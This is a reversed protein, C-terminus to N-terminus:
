LKGKPHILLMSLKNVLGTLNVVIQFPAWIIPSQQTGVFLGMKPLCSSLLPKLRPNQSESQLPLM